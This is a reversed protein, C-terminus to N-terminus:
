SRATPRFNVFTSRCDVSSAAVRWAAQRCHALNRSADAAAPLFCPPAVARSPCPPAPAARAHPQPAIPPDATERTSNLTEADATGRLAPPLYGHTSLCSRTTDRHLILHTFHGMHCLIHISGTPCHARFIQQWGSHISPASSM